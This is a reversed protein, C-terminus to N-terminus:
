KLLKEIFLNIVEVLILLIVIWELASSKRHQMINQFLDLNEKIIQLEEHIDKFRLHLDFTKKLGTDIKNLSEDEWTEPPSDFIYLNEVIRNKLNLTRGIFKKLRKGSIALTGKKELCLTHHNTEELLLSSQQAYYDLAVSQSVNLMILRFVDADKNVIEIKNYGIRNEKANPEILFEESLKTEFINKCYQSIFKIFEACKLEDYNLFCVVGYRFIYLYRDEDIAYFLEDSDSYFLNATFVSKFAKIDIGDSIQFSSVKLM